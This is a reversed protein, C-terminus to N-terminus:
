LTERPDHILTSDTVKRILCPLATEGADMFADYTADVGRDGHFPLLKIEPIRDCIHAANQTPNDNKISASNAPQEKQTQKPSNQSPIRSCASLICALGLIVILRYRGYSKKWPAEISGRIWKRKSCM